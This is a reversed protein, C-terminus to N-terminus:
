KELENLKEIIENLKDVLIKSHKTLYCPTGHENKIYFSNPTVEDRKVNIKEIQKTTDKEIVEIEDTLLISKDALKSIIFDELMKYKMLMNVHKNYTDYCDENRDYFSIKYNINEGNVIKVLLDIVKM